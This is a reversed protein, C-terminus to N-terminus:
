SARIFTSSRGSRRTARRCIPSRSRWPLARSRPLPQNTDTLHPLHTSASGVYGVELVLSQALQQQVGFSWQQIRPTKLHTDMVFEAPQLITQSTDMFAQDVVTYKSKKVLKTARPASRAFDLWAEADMPSYFIGGGGRFVLKGHGFGPSWAFGLRPSFNTYDTFVLSRGLRNDRVYPLYTPSKPNNDFQVPPFGQFPDGSGPRVLTPVPGSFDVNVIDDRNDYWYPM